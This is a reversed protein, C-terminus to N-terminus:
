GPGSQGFEFRASRSVKVARETDEHRGDEESGPSGYFRQENTVYGHYNTLCYSDEVADRGIAWYPKNEPPGILMLCSHGSLAALEAALKYESPSFDTPKVEAWMSVQPLWFDPLYKGSPLDFGEKEYVWTVGLDDFFVAWRAEMRSRFRCGKYRTEIAKLQQQM